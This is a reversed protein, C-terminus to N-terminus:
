PRPRRKGGFTILLEELSDFRQKIRAELMALREEVKLEMATLGDTVKYELNVLRQQLSALKEETTANQGVVTSDRIRVLPHSITHGPSTGDAAAPLRKLDCDHCILM